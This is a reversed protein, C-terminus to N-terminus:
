DIGGKEKVDGGLKRVIEEMSQVIAIGCLVEM